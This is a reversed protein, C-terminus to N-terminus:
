SNSFLLPFCFIDALVDKVKMTKKAFTKTIEKQIQKVKNAHDEKSLGEELEKMRDEFAIKYHGQQFLCIYSKLLVM